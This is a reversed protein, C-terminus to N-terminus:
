RIKAARAKAERELQTYAADNEPRRRWAFFARVAEHTISTTDLRVRWAMAELRALGADSM